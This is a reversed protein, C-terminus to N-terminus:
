PQEDATEELERKALQKCMCVATAPCLLKFEPTAAIEPPVRRRECKRYGHATFFDEASTTLLYLTEVGQSRAHQELQCTLEAGLGQRRVDAHVALSRLLANRGFAELGIIGILGGDATHAALFRTHGSEALDESPLGADSLLRRVSDLEAPDAAAIRMVM